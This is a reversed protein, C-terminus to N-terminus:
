STHEGGISGGDDTNYNNNDDYYQYPDPEVWSSCAVTGLRIHRTFDPRGARIGVVKVWLAFERDAAFNIRGTPLSQGWWFSQANNSFRPSHNYPLKRYTPLYGPDNVGRLEWRVKFGTVGQRGFEQTTIRTSVTCGSNYNYVVLETPFTWVAFQRPTGWARASPASLPAVALGTVLCITAVM